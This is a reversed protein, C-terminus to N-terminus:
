PRDEGTLPTEGPFRGQSADKDSPVSQQQQGDRRGTARRTANERATAKKKNPSSQMTSPRRQAMGTGGGGGNGGRPPTQFRSCFRPRVAAPDPPCTKGTARERRAQRPHRNGTKRITWHEDLSLHLTGGM